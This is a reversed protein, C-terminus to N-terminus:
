MYAMELSIGQSSFKFKQVKSFYEYGTLYKDYIYDSASIYKWNFMNSSFYLILLYIINRTKIM